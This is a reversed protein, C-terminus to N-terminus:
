QRLHLPPLASCISKSLGAISATAACNCLSPSTLLKMPGGAYQRRRRLQRGDSEMVYIM